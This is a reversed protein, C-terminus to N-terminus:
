SATLLWPAQPRPIVRLRPTPRHHWRGPRLCGRRRHDHILAHRTAALLIDRILRQEHSADRMALDAMTLEGEDRLREIDLATLELIVAGTKSHLIRLRPSRRELHADIYLNM